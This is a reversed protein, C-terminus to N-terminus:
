TERNLPGNETFTGTTYIGFAKFKTFVDEFKQVMTLNIILLMFNQKKHLEYM